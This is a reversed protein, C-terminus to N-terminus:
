SSSGARFEMWAAQLGLKRVDSSVGITIPSTANPLVFALVNLPKLWMAPLDFLHVELEPKSLRLQKVTQGNLVVEIVQEDIKGPALFPALAM